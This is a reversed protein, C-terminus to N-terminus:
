STLKLRMYAAVWEETVSEGYIYPRLLVSWPTDRINRHGLFPEEDITRNDEYWVRRGDAIAVEVHYAGVTGFFPMFPEWYLMAFMEALWPDPKLEM